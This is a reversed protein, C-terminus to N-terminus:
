ASGGTSTVTSLGTWFGDPALVDVPVDGLGLAAGARLLRAGVDVGVVILASADDRGAGAEGAATL